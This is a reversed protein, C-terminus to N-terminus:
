RMQDHDPRGRQDRSAQRSQVHRQRHSPSIREKWVGPCWEGEGHRLFRQQHRRHLDHWVQTHDHGGGPRKEVGGIKESSSAGVTESKVGVVKLALAGGVQITKALLVSEKSTMTVILEMSGGITEKHDSGVEISRHAKVKLVQDNGVSLTANNGVKEDQDHGVSLTEDNAVKKARDSGVSVSENNVVSVTHDKTAHLYVDEAGKKDEFRLENKGWSRIVNQAANDSTVPSAQTPNYITSLGLVRDVNGDVCAIVM